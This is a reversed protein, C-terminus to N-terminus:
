IYVQRSNPAPRDHFGNQSPRGSSSLRSRRAHKQGDQTHKKLTNKHTNKQQIPRARTRSIDEWFGLDRGARGKVVDNTHERKM